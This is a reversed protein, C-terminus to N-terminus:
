EGPRPGRKRHFFSRQPFYKRKLHQDLREQMEEMDEYDSNLWLVKALERSVVKRQEEPPLGNYVIVTGNWEGDENTGLYGGGRFNLEPDNSYILRVKRGAVKIIKDGL